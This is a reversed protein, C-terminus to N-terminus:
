SSERLNHKFALKKMIQMREDNVLTVVKGPNAKLSHMNKIDKKTPLLDPM